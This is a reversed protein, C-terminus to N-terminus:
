RPTIPEVILTSVGVQAWNGCILVRRQDNGQIRPFVMVHLRESFGPGASTAAVHIVARSPNNSLPVVSDVRNANVMNSMGRWNGNGSWRGACLEAEGGRAASDAPFTHFFSILALPHASLVPHLQPSTPSHAPLEAAFVNM